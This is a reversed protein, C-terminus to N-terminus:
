EAMRNIKNRIKKYGFSVSRNSYILIYDEVLM